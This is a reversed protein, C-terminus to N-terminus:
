LHPQKPENHCNYVLLVLIHRVRMHGPPQGKVHRQTHHADLPMRM